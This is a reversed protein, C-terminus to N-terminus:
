SMPHYLLNGPLKINEQFSSVWKEITYYIKFDVARSRKSSSAAILLGPKRLFSPFFSEGDSKSDTSSDYNYVNGLKALNYNIM